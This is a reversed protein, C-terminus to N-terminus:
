VSAVTQNIFINEWAKLQMAYMKKRDVERFKFGEKPRNVFERGLDPELIDKIVRKGVSRFNRLEKDLFPFRAEVSFWLGLKDAKRLHHYKLLYIDRKRKQENTKAAIESFLGRPYDPTNYYDYGGLDHSPFM